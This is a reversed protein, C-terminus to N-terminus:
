RMLLVNGYNTAKGNNKKNGEWKKGNKFEADIKYIYSDMKLVQGNSIGDWGEAPSGDILKDSYWLLNGWTDYISIKYNKLNFGVPKFLRLQASPSEPVFTNPVFLGVSINVFIESEYSAQCGFNNTALLTVKYNGYEYNQKIPKALTGATDGIEVIKDFSRGFNWFYNNAISDIPKSHIPEQQSNNYFYIEGEKGTTETTFLPKPTAAIMVKKSASNSCGEKTTEVVSITDIGPTIFDFARNFSQSNNVAYNTVNGTVAWQYNSTPNQNLININYPVSYSKECVSDKGEISPNPTKYSHIVFSDIASNCNGETQYAKIIYRGPKQATTMIAEFSTINNASDLWTYPLTANITIQLPASSGVCFPKPLQTISPVPVIDLMQITAPTATSYCGDFL